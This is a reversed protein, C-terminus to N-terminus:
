TARIRVAESAIILNRFQQTAKCFHPTGPQGSQCWGTCRGPKPCRACAMLTDRLENILFPAESEHLDLDLHALMGEFAEIRLAVGRQM